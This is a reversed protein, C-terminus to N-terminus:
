LNRPQTYWPFVVQVEFRVSGHDVAIQEILRGGQFLLLPHHIFHIGHTGVGHERYHLCMRGLRAHADEFFWGIMPNFLYVVETDLFPASLRIRHLSQAQGIFPISPYCLTM